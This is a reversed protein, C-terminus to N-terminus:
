KFLKGLGKKAKTGEDRLHISSVITSITIISIGVTGEM